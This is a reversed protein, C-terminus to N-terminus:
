RLWYRPSAEVPTITAAPLDLWGAHCTLLGIEAGHVDVAARPTVIREVTGDADRALRVHAARVVCALERVGKDCLGRFLKRYAAPLKSRPSAALARSLVLTGHEGPAPATCAQSAWGDTVKTFDVTAAWPDRADTWQPPQVQPRPALGRRIDDNCIAATM